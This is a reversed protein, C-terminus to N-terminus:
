PYLRASARVPVVEHDDLGPVAGLLIHDVELLLHVHVADEEVDIELHDLRGPLGATTVRAIVYARADDPDVVVTGDLQVRRTDILGAADDAAAAVVRQARRQAVHMSTLDIAVGLLMITVLTM